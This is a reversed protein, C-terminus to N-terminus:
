WDRGKYKEKRNYRAKNQHPRATNSRGIEVMADHFAKNRAKPAQPKRKSM